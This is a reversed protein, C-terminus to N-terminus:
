GGKASPAKKTSGSERWRQPSQGTARTFARYFNSLDEFGCEFCVSAVSRSTEALLHRAHALRRERISALWSQGTLQRFIQTFRRVGLGCRAAVSELSERRYFTQRSEEIYATVRHLSAESAFRTGAGLRGAQWRIWGSWLMLARGALMSEWGPQRVTQEYLMEKFLREAMGQLVPHSAARCRLDLVDTVPLLRVQLCLVYLSLPESDSIRHRKGAPVVVVRGHELPLSAKEMQLRGKGGIIYIVKLFAHTTWEMRFDDAHHSELM